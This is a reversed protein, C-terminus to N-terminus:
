LSVYYLALTRNSYRMGCVNQQKWSGQLYLDHVKGPGMEICKKFVNVVELKTTNAVVYGVIPM